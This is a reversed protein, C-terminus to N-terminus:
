RMKGTRPVIPVGTILSIAHAATALFAVVLLMLILKYPLMRPKAINVPRSDRWYCFVFLAVIAVLLGYTTHLNM